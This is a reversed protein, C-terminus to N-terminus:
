ILGAAGVASAAGEGCIEIWTLGFGRWAVNLCNSTDLSTSLLHGSVPSDVNVPEAVPPPGVVQTLAASISPSANLDGSYAGIIDHSGESLAATSFTAQGNTLIGTGLSTAGDFFTVSGTPNGSAAAVVATFTVLQRLTSPAPSSQLSTTSPARAITITCTATGGVYNPDVSTFTVTATYTGADVPATGGAVYTFAFFGTVPLGGIGTATATAGHAAGDYVFTGDLANVTPAAPGIVITGQGTADVYNPDGSTFAATV